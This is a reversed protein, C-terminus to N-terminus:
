KNVKDNKEEKKKLLAVEQTLKIIKESQLSVKMSLSLVLLGLCVFGILFIMNSLKEFGLFDKFIMLANDFIISLMLGITVLFWSLGLKFDLKKKMVKFYLNIDFLFCLIFLFVKLRIGM